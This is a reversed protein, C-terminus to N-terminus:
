ANQPYIIVGCHGESGAMMVFSKIVSSATRHGGSLGQQLKVGVLGTVEADDHFTSGTKKRLDDARGYALFRRLSAFAAVLIGAGNDTERGARPTM